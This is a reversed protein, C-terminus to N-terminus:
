GRRHRAPEQRSRTGCGGAGAFRTVAARRPPAPWRRWATRRGPQRTAPMPPLRPGRESPRTACRAILFLSWCTPMAPEAGAASQQKVGTSTQRRAASSREARAPYRSGTRSGASATKGAIVPYAVHRCLRCRQYQFRGDGAWGAALRLGLRHRRVRALPEVVADMARRHEPRLGAIAADVAGVPRHGTRRHLGPGAPSLYGYQRRNFSRRASARGSAKFGNRRTSMKRM